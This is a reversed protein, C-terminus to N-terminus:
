RGSPACVQGPLGTPRSLTAPPRLWSRRVPQSMLRLEITTSGSWLPRAQVPRMQGALGAARPRPNPGGRGATGRAPGRGAREPLGHNPTATPLPLAQELSAFRPIFRVLGIVAFIRLVRTGDPIVLRLGGGEALARKHAAVLASFGASDCYRTGTMDVVVRAHGRRGAELLVTRLQKANAVDIEAPASVVAVGNIM